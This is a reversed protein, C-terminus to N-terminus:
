PIRHPVAHEGDATNIFHTCGLRKAEAAIDGVPELGALTIWGAARLRRGSEPDHDSPLFCRQEARAGPVGRMVSDLYLSFGTAPEGADDPGKIGAGAHYRGGRGLEGRVGKAFLTFSLGSQYEFGRREVADVTVALDPVSAALRPLVASLRAIEAAGDSPLGDIAQLASLAGDARGSADLLAGFLRAAEGGLDRIAAADRRDLAARANARTQGDLALAEFLQPALTPLAIDVSLGTVGTASLANAALAIVEADAAPSTAGIIECGAQTVQREPRLQAGRVRLTQGAYSLRLPRPQKALRSVAIRAVQVTMDARVGMMRQSVPDMLRFTHAATAAGPGSLLSDEFEVLPPDVRQFSQAHFHDLLGRLVASEHAAAPPVVDRLGDPLLSNTADARM